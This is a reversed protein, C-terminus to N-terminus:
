WCGATRYDTASEYRYRATTEAGGFHALRLPFVQTAYSATTRQNREEHCNDRTGGNAKRSNCIQIQNKTRGSLHRVGVTIAYVYSISGPKISADNCSQAFADFDDNV